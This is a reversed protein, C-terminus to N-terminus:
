VATDAAARQGEPWETERGAQLGRRARGVRPLQDPRPPEQYAATDEGRNTVPAPDAPQTATADREPQYRPPFGQYRPGRYGPGQSPTVDRGPDAVAEPEPQDPQDAASQQSAAEPRRRFAVIAQQRAPPAESMGAQRAPATGAREDRGARSVPLLPAPPFTMSLPPRTGAPGVLTDPERDERQGTGGPAPQGTRTLELVSQPGYLWGSDDDAPPTAPARVAAVAPAPEAPRPVAVRPSAAAPRESALRYGPEPAPERSAAAHGANAASRSQDPAPERSAAPSPAPARRRPDPGLPDASLPGPAAAQSEPGARRWDPRTTIEPRPPSVRSTIEAHVPGVCDHGDLLAALKEAEDAGVGFVVRPQGWPEVLSYGVYSSVPPTPGADLGHAARWRNWARELSIAAREARKVLDPDRM